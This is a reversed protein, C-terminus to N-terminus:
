KQNFIYIDGESSHAAIRQGDSSVTPEFLDTKKDAKLEQTAKSSLDYVFMSSGLIRMGDDESKAFVVADNGIWQPADANGLEHLTNGQLDSVFVGLGAIQYLLMDGNQSLQASIYNGEAQPKVMKVEGSKNVIEIGLLDKSLRASAGEKQKSAFASPSLSKQNEDVDAIQKKDMDFTEIYKMRGKVQYVIKGNVWQPQYGAGSKETIITSTGGALDYYWLGEFSEKSYLLGKGNNVFKPHYGTIELKQVEANEWNQSKNVSEESTNSVLEIEATKEQEKVESSENTAKKPTCAFAFAILVISLNKM